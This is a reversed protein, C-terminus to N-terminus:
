ERVHTCKIPHAYWDDGGRERGEGGGGLLIGEVMVDLRLRQAPVVLVLTGLAVLEAIGVLAQPETGEGVEEGELELPEVEVVAGHVPDLQVVPPLLSAENM